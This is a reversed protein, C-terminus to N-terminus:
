GLEKVQVKLEDEFVEETNTTQVTFQVVYKEGHIGSSVKFYIFPSSIALNDVVLTVPSEGNEATISKVVASQVSDGAILVNTYDLARRLIEAPQKSMSGLIM